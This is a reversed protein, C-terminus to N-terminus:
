ASLLSVTGLDFVTDKDCAYLTKDGETITFGGDDNLRLVKGNPEGNDGIIVHSDVDHSDHIITRMGVMGLMQLMIDTRSGRRIVPIMRTNADQHDMVEDYDDYYCETVWDDHSRRELVFIYDM